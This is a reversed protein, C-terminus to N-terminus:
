YVLLLEQFRAVFKLCPIDWIEISPQAVRQFNESAWSLYSYKLAVPGRNLKVVLIDLAKSYTDHKVEKKNGGVSRALFVGTLTLCGTYMWKNAVKMLEECQLVINLLIIYFIKCFM